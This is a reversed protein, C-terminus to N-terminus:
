NDQLIIVPTGLSIYKDLKVVDSNYMRICGSSCLHGISAEDNNGHIAIGYGISAVKGNVIPIQGLNLAKDYRKKDDENPYNIGFYRPGYANDGLDEDSKGFKTYGQAKSFFHENMSKLKQYSPSFKDADMSLIENVEYLGSPTRNDGEYLKPGMDPNSGYGVKFCAVVGKDREYVELAFRKKSILIVYKGDYNKFIDSVVKEEKSCSFVFLFILCFLFRRMNVFIVEKNFPILM